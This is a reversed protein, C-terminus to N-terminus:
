YYIFNGKIGLALNNKVAWAFSPMFAVNNSRQQPYPNNPINNDSSFNLGAMAGFLKDKKYFVQSLSTLTFLLFACVFLLLHKKM